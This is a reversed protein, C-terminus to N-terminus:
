LEKLLVIKLEKFKKLTQDNTIFAKAKAHLATALQISDPLGFRYERRIRAARIALNHDIKLVELNPIELFQEDMEVADKESLIPHSLLEIIAVESTVGKIKNEFLNDIIAKASKGFQPHANFYYIFINSDIGILNFKDLFKKM